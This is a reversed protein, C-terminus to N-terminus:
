ILIMARLRLELEITDLKTHGDTGQGDIWFAMM